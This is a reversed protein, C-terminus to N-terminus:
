DFYQLEQERGPSLAAPGGVGGVCVAAAEPLLVPPAAATQARAVPVEPPVEPLGTLDSAEGEQRQLQQVKGKQRCAQRQQAQARAVAM